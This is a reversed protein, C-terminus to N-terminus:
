KQMYQSSFPFFDRAHTNTHTCAHSHKSEKRFVEEEVGGDEQERDSM